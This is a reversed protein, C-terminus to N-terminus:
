DVPGARVIKLGAPNIIVEHEGGRGETGPIALLAGPPCDTEYVYAPRFQGSDGSYRGFREAFWQAKDRDTTWSMRRVRGSTYGRYLRMPEAPREAPRGDITFGAREFLYLWAKRSVCEEPWEAASWVGTITATLIEQTIERAVWAEFLRAPAGNRGADLLLGWAEDEALQGAATTDTM